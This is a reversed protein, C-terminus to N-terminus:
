IKASLDSNLALMSEEWHIGDFQVVRIEPPGRSGWDICSVTIGVGDPNSRPTYWPLIGCTACFRRVARGTGWRYLTSVQELNAPLVFDAAPVITHINKRM